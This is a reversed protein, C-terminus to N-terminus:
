KEHHIWRVRRRKVSQDKTSLVAKSKKFSILFAHHWLPASSFVQELPLAATWSLLMEQLIAEPSCTHKHANTAESSVRAPGRKSFGSVGSTPVCGCRQSLECAWLLGSTQGPDRPYVLHSASRTLSCPTASAWWPPNIVEPVGILGSVTSTVTQGQFWLRWGPTVM